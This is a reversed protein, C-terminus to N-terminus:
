EVEEGEREVNSKEDILDFYKGEESARYVKKGFKYRLSIIFELSELEVVKYLPNLSNNQNAFYQAGQFDTHTFKCGLDLQFNQIEYGFGFTYSLAFANNVNYVPMYAFGFRLPLNNNLIYEVGLRYELFNSYNESFYKGTTVDIGFSDKLKQWDFYVIEIAILSGVINPPNYLVSFRLEYPFEIKRAGEIKNNTSSYYVDSTLNYPLNYVIGLRAIDKYNLLLGLTTTYGKINKNKFTTNYSVFNPTLNSITTNSKFSTTGDIKGYIYNLSFGINFFELLDSKFIDALNIASAFALRNLTGSINIKYKFLIPHTGDPSRYNDEYNYDFNVIGSTGAALFFSKLIQPSAFALFLPDLYINGNNALYYHAMTDFSNHAFTSLREEERIVKLSYMVEFQRNFILNAPNYFIDAAGNNVSTTVGGMAFSKGNLALYKDGYFVYNFKNGDPTAGTFSYSFLYNSFIIFFLIILKLNKM